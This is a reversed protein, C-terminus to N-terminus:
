KGVVEKTEQTLNSARNLEYDHDFRKKVKGISQLNVASVNGSELNGGNM